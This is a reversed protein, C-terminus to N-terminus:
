AALGRVSAQEEVIFATRLLMWHSRYWRRPDMLRMALLDLTVQDLRDNLRCSSLIDEDMPRQTVVMVLEITPGWHAPVVLCRDPGPKPPVEIALSWQRRLPGDRDDRQWPSPLLPVHLPEGLDLGAASHIAWLHVVNGEGPDFGTLGITYSVRESAKVKDLERRRVPDAVGIPMCRMAPMPMVPPQDLRYLKAYGRHAGHPNEALRLLSRWPMGLAPAACPIEADMARLRVIFDEYPALLLEVYPLHAPNDLDIAEPVELGHWKLFAAAPRAAIPDEGNCIRTLQPGSLSILKGLDKDHKILGSETLEIELQEAKEAPLIINAKLNAFKVDFQHTQLRKM